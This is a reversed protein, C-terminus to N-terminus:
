KFIIIVSCVTSIIFILIIVFIIIFPINSFIKKIKSESAQSSYYDLRQSLTKIADQEEYSFINEDAILICKELSM